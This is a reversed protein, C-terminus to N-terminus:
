KYKRVPIMIAEDQNGINEVYIVSYEKTNIIAKTSDTVPVTYDNFDFVIVGAVDPRMSESVYREATAGDWFIGQVTLSVSPYTKVNDGNDTIAENLNWFDITQPKETKFLDKIFNL